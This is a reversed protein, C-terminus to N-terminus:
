KVIHYLINNDKLKPYEIRKWTSEVSVGAANQFVNINGSAGKAFNGSLSDWIPGSVSRPLFPSVSNMIRGGTTMELTQMGNSKAFDMAANKAVDGGSWFVRGGESGAIAGRKLANSALGTGKSLLAGEIVKETGYGVDYAIESASKGPLGKVYSAASSATEMNKIRGTPSALNARDAIDALGKGVNQWGEVTTLSKAFAFTSRGGDKFGRAFSRM